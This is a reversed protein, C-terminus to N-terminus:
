VEEKRTRNLKTLARQAKILGSTIFEPKFGKSKLISRVYHDRLETVGRKCIEPHNIQYQRSKANYYEKKAQYCRKKGESVKELNAERYKKHHARMIDLNESRWRKHNHKPCMGHGAGKSAGGKSSALRDCGEVCCKPPTYNDWRAPRKKMPDGTRRWRQYHLSCYGHGCVKRECNKVSCIKM